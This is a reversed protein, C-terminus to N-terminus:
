VFRHLASKTGSLSLPVADKSILRDPKLIGKMISTITYKVTIVSLSRSRQQQKLVNCQENGGDFRCTHIKGDTTPDAVVYNSTLLAL